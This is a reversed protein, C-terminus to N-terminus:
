AHRNSYGAPRWRIAKEVGNGQQYMESLLLQAEAHDQQAAKNIWSAAEAPDKRQESQQLYMKGLRYQADANGADALPFWLMLATAHDKEDYAAAARKLQKKIEATSKASDGDAAIAPTLVAPGTMGLCSILVFTILNLRKIQM